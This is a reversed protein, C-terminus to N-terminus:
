LISIIIEVKFLVEVSSVWIGRSASVRRGSVCSQDSSPPSTSLDTLISVRPPPYQSLIARKQRESAERYKQSVRGRGDNGWFELGRRGTHHFGGRESRSSGVHYPSARIISYM